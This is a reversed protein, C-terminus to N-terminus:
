LEGDLRLTRSVGDTEVTCHYKGVNDSTFYPITLTTTWRCASQEFTNNLEYEPITCLTISGNNHEKWWFPKQHEEVAVATCVLEAREGERYYSM